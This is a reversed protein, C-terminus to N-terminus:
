INVNSHDYLISTGGRGPYLYPSEEPPVESWVSVAGPRCSTEGGGGGGGSRLWRGPWPRSRHGPSGQQAKSNCSSRSWVPGSLLARRWHQYSQGWIVHHPTSHHSHQCYESSLQSSCTLWATILNVAGLRALCPQAGWDATGIEPGAPQRFRLMWSVARSVRVTVLVLDTDGRESSQLAPGPLLDQLLDEM